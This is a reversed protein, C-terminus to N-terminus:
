GSTLRAYAALDLLQVSGTSAGELRIMWGDGIPDNNVLEPRDILASNVEAVTGDVPTYLDSAAKVSEISGFKEGAKLTLGPEPLEVFIVDGLQSQAFDTIGVRAEGGDLHVWEHSASFRLDSLEAVTV